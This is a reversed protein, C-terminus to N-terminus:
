QDRQRRQHITRPVPGALIAPYILAVVSAGSIGPSTQEIGLSPKRRRGAGRLEASILGPRAFERSRQHYLGHGRGVFLAAPLDDACGSSTRYQRVPTAAAPWFRAARMSGLM